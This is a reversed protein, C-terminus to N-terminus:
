VAKLIDAAYMQELFVAIDNRVTELEEIEYLLQFEKTIENLDMPKSSKKIMEFIDKATENLVHYQETYTSYLVFDGEIENWGFRDQNVVFKKM